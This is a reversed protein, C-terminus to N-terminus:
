NLSEIKRQSCCAPRQRHTRQGTTNRFHKETCRRSLGRCGLPGLQAKTPVNYCLICYVCNLVKKELPIGESITPSFLACTEDDRLAAKQQLPALWNMVRAHKRETGTLRQRVPWKARVLSKEGTDDCYHRSMSWPLEYLCCLFIQCPLFTKIFVVQPSLQSDVCLFIDTYINAAPCPMCRSITEKM